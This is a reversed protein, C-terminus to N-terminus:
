YVKGLAGFTTMQATYPITGSFHSNSLNLFELFSLLSMSPPIPGSLSNSSLDLSSLQHWISINEPIQGSIHNRSLNLVVLGALKSLEQPLDGHLNNGSLDIITPLSITKTYNQSQGKTNVVFSEEYYPGGSIGYYLYHNRNQVQAMAKLDGFTDPITGNLKNENLMNNGLYLTELSLLNQFSSPLEGSLKNGSLHLTQLFKASGLLKSNRWFFNNNSLDLALLMLCNGISSPIKGSISLFFLNPMSAGINRPIPGSFRNNSLDLLSIEGVSVSTNSMSLTTLENQSKLWSPFSPGLHCSDMELKWLQFPPIWHSNVKLTFSNSSLLLVRLEPNQFKLPSTPGENSFSLDKLCESKLKLVNLPMGIGTNKPDKSFKCYRLRDCAPNLPVIGGFKPFRELKSYRSTLWEFKTTSLRSHIAPRTERFCRLILPTSREISPDSQISVNFLSGTKVSNCRDKQPRVFSDYAPPHPNHLDVVFVAGTINECHIGHWLCCNSGQWSSLQKEPDDLGNKFEILADRDSKRCHVSQAADNCVFNKAILCVFPLLLRLVSVKEM